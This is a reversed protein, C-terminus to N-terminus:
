SHAVIRFVPFHEGFRVFDGDTPEDPLAMFQRAFSEREYYRRVLDPRQGTVEVLEVPRESGGRRMGVVPNARVNHVWSVEGYPSVLYEGEDDAIPSVTVSRPEGSRKGVTTIVTFTGLGLGAARAMLWSVFRKGPTVRYEKAM